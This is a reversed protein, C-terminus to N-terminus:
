KFQLNEPQVVEGPLASNLVDHRRNLADLVRLAGGVRVLCQLGHAVEKGRYAGSLVM